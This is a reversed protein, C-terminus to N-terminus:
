YSFVKLSLSFNMGGSESEGEVALINEVEILRASWEVAKLFNELSSNSGILTCALSYGKLNGAAVPAKPMNVATLVLGSESAKSHLFSLLSLLSPDLPLATKIKALNEEHRILEAITTNLQALQVRREELIKSKASLTKKVLSFEKFTPIIFYIGIVFATFIIIPILFVRKM